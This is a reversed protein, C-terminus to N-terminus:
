QLVQRWLFIQRFVLPRFVKVLPAVLVPINVSGGILFEVTPRCQGSETKHSVWDKYSFREEIDKSFIISDAKSPGSLLLLALALMRWINSARHEGTSMSNKETLVTTPLKRFANIIKNKIILFIAWNKEGTKM